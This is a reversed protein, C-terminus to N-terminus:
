CGFCDECEDDHCHQNLPVWSSEPHRQLYGKNFEDCDDHRNCSRKPKHYPCLRNPIKHGLVWECLCKEVKDSM